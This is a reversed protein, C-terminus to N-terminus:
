SLEGSEHCDAPYEGAARRQLRPCPPLVEAFEGKRARGGPRFCACVSTTREEIMVIYIMITYFHRKDVSIRCNFLCRGCLDGQLRGIRLPRCRMHLFSPFVAYLVAKKEERRQWLGAAATKRRFVARVAGGSRGTVFFSSECKSNRRM